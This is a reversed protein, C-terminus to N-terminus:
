YCQYIMWVSSFDKKALDPTRIWFYLFGADGWMMGTENDSDLQLLLKWDEIGAELEAAKPDASFDGGYFGNSAYQCSLEMYDDQIPIPFGGVQHQEQGHTAERRLRDEVQAATEEAGTVDIGARVSDPYSRMPRPDVLKESFVQDPMLGEPKIAPTMQESQPSYIVRWSGRDAPYLGTTSDARYYFFYLLGTKPLDSLSPLAQLASLDIQALFALPKGKWSPWEFGDPVDPVGGIKSRSTGGHRAALHLAPVSARRLSDEIESGTLPGRQKPVLDCSPAVALILLISLPLYCKMNAHGVKQKVLM